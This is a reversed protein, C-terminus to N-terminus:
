QTGSGRNYLAISLLSEIVPCLLPKRLTQFPTLGSDSSKVMEILSLYFKISPLKAYPGGGRGRGGVGGGLVGPVAVLLQEKAGAQVGQLLFCDM